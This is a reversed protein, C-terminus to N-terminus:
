ISVLSPKITGLFLLFREQSNNCQWETEVCFCNKLPFDCFDVSSGVAFRLHLHRVIATMNLTELDNRSKFWSTWSSLFALFTTKPVNKIRILKYNEIWSFDRPISYSKRSIRKKYWRILRSVPRSGFSAKVGFGIIEEFCYSLPNFILFQLPGWGVGMVVLTFM